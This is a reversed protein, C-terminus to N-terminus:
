KTTILKVKDDKNNMFIDIKKTILNIKINDSKVNGNLSKFTVNEFIHIDQSAFDLDVKDSLILNEDYEIKINGLFNTNHNTNNYLAEDSIIKIPKNNGDIFQAIVKRMKIIEFDNEYNIESSESKILYQKNNEIKVDYVLNKILNNSDSKQVEEIERKEIEVTQNEPFYIKYFSICIVILILFLAIQIVKKM